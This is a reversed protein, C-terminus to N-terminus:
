ELKERTINEFVGTVVFTGGGLPGRAESYQDDTNKM